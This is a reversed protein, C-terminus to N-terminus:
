SRTNSKPVLNQIYNETIVRFTPMCAYINIKSHIPRELQGLSGYASKMYIPPVMDQPGIYSM